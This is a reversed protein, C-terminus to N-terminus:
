LCSNVMLCSCLCLLEQSSKCILLFLLFLWMGMSFVLLIKKCMWRSLGKCIASHPTEHKDTMLLFHKRMKFFVIGRCIVPSWIIQEFKEQSEIKWIRNSDFYDMKRESRQTRYGGATLELQVSHKRSWTSSWTDFVSCFLCAVFRGHSASISVYTLSNRPVFM